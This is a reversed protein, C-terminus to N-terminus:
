YKILKDSYILQNNSNFISIIYVGNAFSNLNITKETTTMMIRGSLDRLEVTENISLGSITVIEQTPNPYISLNINSKEKSIALTSNLATSFVPRIILSGAFSTNNWDNYYLGM